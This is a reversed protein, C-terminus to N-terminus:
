DRPVSDKEGWNQRYITAEKEGLLSSQEVELRSAVQQLRSPTVPLDPHSTRNLLGNRDTNNEGPEKKPRSASCGCLKGTQLQLGTPTHTKHLSLSVSQYPTPWKKKRSSIVSKLTVKEIVQNAKCKTFLPLVIKSSLVKQVPFHCLISIVEQIVIGM